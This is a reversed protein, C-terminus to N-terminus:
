YFQLYSIATVNTLILIFMLSLIIMEYCVAYLPFLMSMSDYATKMWIHFLVLPNENHTM